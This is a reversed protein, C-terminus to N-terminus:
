SRSPLIVPDFIEYFNMTFREVNESIDDFMFFIRKFKEFYPESNELGEKFNEHLTLDIFGRRLQRQMDLARNRIESSQCFKEIYKKFVVKFMQEATFIAFHRDAPIGDNLLDLYLKEDPTVLVKKYFDIITRTEAGLIEGKSGILGWCPSPNTPYLQSVLAAGNCSSSIILLNFRSIKNIISLKETIDDFFICGKTKTKFGYEHGHFDFHILPIERNKYMNDIIFQFACEIDQQCGVEISYFNFKDNKTKIEPFIKNKLRLVLSTQLESDPM